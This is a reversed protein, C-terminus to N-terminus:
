SPFVARCTLPFGVQSLILLMDVGDDGALAVTIVVPLWHKFDILIVM